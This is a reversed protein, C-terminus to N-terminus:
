FSQSYRKTRGEGRAYLLALNYTSHKGGQDSAKQFLEAAKKHDQPVGEGDLYMLGLHYQAGRSGKEAMPRLVGLATKYDKKDLDDWVKSLQEKSMPDNAFENTTDDARACNSIAGSAVMTLALALTWAM